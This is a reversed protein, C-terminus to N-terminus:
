VPHGSELIRVCPPDDPRPQLGARFSEYLLRAMELLDDASHPEFPTPMLQGEIWSALAKLQAQRDPFYHYVTRVAVGARVAAERVSLESVGPRGLQEAFAALILDRTREAQDRRLRSEYSRARPQAEGVWTFLSLVLQHRQAVAAMTPLDPPLSVHADMDAFFAGAGSPSTITLFHAQPSLVAILTCAIPPLTCPRALAWCSTNTVANCRWSATWFWTPKTGRTPM